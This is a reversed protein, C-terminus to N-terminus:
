LIDCSINMLNNALTILCIVGTTMIPSSDHYGRMRHLWQLENSSRVGTSEMQPHGIKMHTASVQSWPLTGPYDDWCHGGPAVHGDFIYIYEFGHRGAPLGHTAPTVSPWMVRENSQWARDNNVTPKPNSHWLNTMWLGYDIKIFRSKGSAKNGTSAHCAQFRPENTLYRKLARHKFQLEDFIIHM